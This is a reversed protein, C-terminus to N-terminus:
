GPLGYLRLHDAAESRALPRSRRAPTYWGCTCRAVTFPGNDVVVVEHVEALPEGPDPPAQEPIAAGKAPDSM